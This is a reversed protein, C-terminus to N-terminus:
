DHQVGVIFLGRADAAAITKDQDLILSGGAEVAIGSFGADALQEITAPGISPLDARAEQGPKKLKVLVGGRAERKLSACRSILADTGEAAEVGLVYGHEVIVAQGVDVAGLAVAVKVGQLIDVEALADPSIRGLVGPPALLNAMVTDAGVVRFGEDELFTIVSSLLADDGSFFAGGLKAILKAGLFDPRLSSLSPRKVRGALVLEQVGAARLKGISEGVAGLRVVAHPVENIASMDAIGELAVVFFARGSSQCCEILQLPLRGGGAIIGLMPKTTSDIAEAVASM